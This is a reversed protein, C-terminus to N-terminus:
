NRKSSIWRPATIRSTVKLKRYNADNPFPDLRQLRSREAAAKDFAQRADSWRNRTSYFLIGCVIRLRRLCDSLHRAMRNQQFWKM